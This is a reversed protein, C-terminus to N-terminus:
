KTRKPNPDTTQATYDDPVQYYSRPQRSRAVEGPRDWRCGLCSGDMTQLLLCGCRPCRPGHIIYEM